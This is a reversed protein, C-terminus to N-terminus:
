PYRLAKQVVIHSDAGARPQRLLFPRPQRVGAPLSGWGPHAGSEVRETPQKLSVVPRLTEEFSTISLFEDGQLPFTFQAVTTNSPTSSLASLASPASTRATLISM